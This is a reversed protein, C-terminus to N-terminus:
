VILSFFSVVPSVYSAVRVPGCVALTLAVTVPSRGWTAAAPLQFLLMPTRGMHKQPCLRPRSAWAVRYSFICPRSAWAVPVLFSMPSVDM